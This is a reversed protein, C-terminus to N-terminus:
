YVCGVPGGHQEDEQGARIGVVDAQIVSSVLGRRQAPLGDAVGRLCRACPTPPGAHPSSPMRRKRATCPASPDSSGVYPLIDAQRM